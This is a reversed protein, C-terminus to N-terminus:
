KAPPMAISLTKKGYEITSYTKGGGRGLFNAAPALSLEAVPISKSFLIVNTKDLQNATLMGITTPEKKNKDELGMTELGSVSMGSDAFLMTWGKVKPDKNQYVAAFEAGQKLPIRCYQDPNDALSGKSGSLFDALAMATLGSALITAPDPDSIAEGALLSELEATASATDCAKPVLLPRPKAVPKTSSVALMTRELRAEQEAPSLVSSSSRIKVIWGNIEAVALGTSKMSGAIPYVRRLGNPEKAGSMTYAKIASGEGLGKPKWVYNLIADAREFWLAANPNTARFVYITIAEGGSKFNIISQLPTEQSASAVRPLTDATEAISLSSLSIPSQAVSPNAIFLAPLAAITFCVRM